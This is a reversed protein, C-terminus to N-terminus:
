NPFFRAVDRDSRPLSLSGPSPRSSALRDRSTAPPPISSPSQDALVMGQSRALELVDVVLYGDKVPREFTTNAVFDDSPNPKISGLYMTLEAMEPVTLRVVRPLQITEPPEAGGTAPLRITEPREVRARAILDGRGETFLRHEIIRQEAISLVSEKVMTSGNPLRRQEILTLTADSEGPAIELDAPLPELGLVEFIWDPRVSALMPDAFGETQAYSGIVMENSLDNAFWFERDNSGIDAVAMGPPKRLTVRLNRAREMVMVGSATGGLLPSRDNGNQDRFTDIKINLDSVKLAHVLQSRRDHELAVRRVLEDPDPREAQEVPVQALDRRLFNGQFSSRCGTGTSVVLGLLLLPVIPFRSM